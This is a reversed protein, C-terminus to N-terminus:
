ILDQIRSSEHKHRSAAESSQTAIIEKHTWAHQKTSYFSHCEPIWITEKESPMQLFNQNPYMVISCRQYYKQGYRQRQFLAGTFRKM